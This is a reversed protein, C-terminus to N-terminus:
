MYGNATLLAAFEPALEGAHDMSRLRESMVDRPPGAVGEVVLIAAIRQEVTLDVFRLDVGGDGSDISPESGM